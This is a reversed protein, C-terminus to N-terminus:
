RIAYVSDIRILVKCGKELRGKESTLPVISVNTTFLVIRQAVNEVFAPTHTSIM